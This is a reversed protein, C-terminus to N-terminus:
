FSFDPVSNSTAKAPCPISCVLSLRQKLAKSGRPLGGNFAHVSVGHRIEGIKNATLSLGISLACLCRSVCVYVCVAM